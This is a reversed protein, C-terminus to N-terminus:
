LEIFCHCHSSFVLLPFCCVTKQLDVHDVEWFDALFTWVANWTSQSRNYINEQIRKGGRICHQQKIIEEKEDEIMQPLKCLRSSCLVCM